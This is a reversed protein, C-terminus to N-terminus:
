KEVRFNEVSAELTKAVQVTEQIAQAVKTSTQSQDQSSRASQEMLRSVAQSTEAQSVTSRSISQMIQNIAESREVVDSLRERTKEVSKASTLVERNGVEMAKISESTQQQIKNVIQAIEKAASASQESLSEIQEAVATFGKGFDGAQHAELSANMALLTTKLSIQDIISVVETIQQASKGMEQMKRATEGVTSRLQQISEVTEEMAENGEQATSFAQDAINAAKQANDAVEEISRTMEEVSNLTAQIEEAQAIASQALHHIEIDNDGLADSVRSAAQKVQRATEQLNEVVMNFLDAVIGVDGELLRARVTLDGEAAGELDNMLQGVEEELKERQQRQQESTDEQEKLLAQVREVLNNFSKALTRTEVGGQLQARVALNGAAVKQASQSVNILPSSLQRALIVVIGMSVAGLVGAVLVFMYILENGAAQLVRNEVSAIAVWETEPITTLYYKRGQYLFNFILKQTDQQNYFQLHTQELNYQNSLNSPEVVPESGSNLAKILSRAIKEVALSGQINEETVAGEATIATLIQNTSTDLVQVQSTELFTKNVVNQTTQLLNSLREQSVQSALLSQEQLRNEYQNKINTHVVSWGAIGAVILPTLVTPVIGLLLQKRLTLGKKEQSLSPPKQYNKDNRGTAMQSSPFYSVTKSNIM